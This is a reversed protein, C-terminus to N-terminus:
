FLRLSFSGCQAFFEAVIDFEGVVHHSQEVFAFLEQQVTFEVEAAIAFVEFGNATAFDGCCFDAEPGGALFCLEFLGAELAAQGFLGIDGGDSLQEEFADFFVVAAEVLDDCARIGCGLRQVFDTADDGAPLM